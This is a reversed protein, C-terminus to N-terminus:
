ITEKIYIRIQKVQVPTIVVVVSHFSLQMLYYYYYYYNLSSKRCIYVTKM